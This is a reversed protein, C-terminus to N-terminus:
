EDNRENSNQSPLRHDARSFIEVAKVYKQGGRYYSVRLKVAVYLGDIRTEYKYFGRYDHGFFGKFKGLFEIDLDEIKDFKGLKLAEVREKFEDFTMAGADEEPYEPTMSEETDRRTAAVIEDMVGATERSAESVEELLGEIRRVADTLSKANKGFNEMLRAIKALPDEYGSMGELENFPAQFTDSRQKDASDIYTVKVEVTETMVKEYVPRVDGLYIEIKRGPPLYKIGHKIVGIEKFSDPRQGLGLADIKRMLDKNFRIDRAIGTGLNEIRFVFFNPNKEGPRIEAVILPTDNAKVLKGTLRVYLFTVVALFINAILAVVSVIIALSGNSSELM